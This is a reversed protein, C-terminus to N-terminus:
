MCKIFNFPDIESLSWLYLSCFYFLLYFVQYQYNNLWHNLLQIILDINIKSVRVWVRM